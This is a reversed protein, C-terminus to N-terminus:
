KIIKQNKLENVIIVARNICEKAIQFPTKDTLDFNTNTFMTIACKRIISNHSNFEDNIIKNTQAQIDQVGAFITGIAAQQAALSANLAESQAELSESIASTQSEMSSAVSDNIENKQQELRDSVDSSLNSVSEDLENKQQELRESVDSSLNSLKDDIDSKSYVDDLKSQLTENLEILETLKDAIEKLTDYEEPAEDKLENIADTIKEQVQEETLGSSEETIEEVEDAM